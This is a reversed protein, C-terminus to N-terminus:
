PLQWLARSPKTYLALFQNPHACDATPEDVYIIYVWGEVDRLAKTTGDPQLM